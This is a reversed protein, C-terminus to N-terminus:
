VENNKEKLWIILDLTEFPYRTSKKENELKLYENFNLTDSFLAFESDKKTNNLITTM